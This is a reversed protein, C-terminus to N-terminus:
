QIKDEMRSIVIETLETYDYEEKDYISVANNIEEETLCLINKMATEYEEKVYLAGKEEGYPFDAEEMQRIQALERTCMEIAYEVMYEDPTTIDVVSKLNELIDMSIELNEYLGCVRTYKEYSGGRKDLKEYYTCLEEYDDKQYYEELCAIEKEQQALMDGKTFKFFALVILVTLLGLLIVGVGAYLLFKTTNKLVKEPMKKVKRKKEDIHKLYETQQRRAMKENETHCYPCQSKLSDYDAGCNECIM